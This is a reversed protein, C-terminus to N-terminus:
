LLVECFLIAKQWLKALHFHIIQKVVLMAQYSSLLYQINESQCTYLLLVECFLIAKQWLKAVHLHIIQKVVLM